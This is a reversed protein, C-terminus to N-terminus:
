KFMKNLNDVGEDPLTAWESPPPEVGLIRYVAIHKATCVIEALSFQRLNAPTERKMSLKICDWRPLPINDLNGDELFAARLQEVTRGITLLIAADSSEAVWAARAAYKEYHERRGRKEFNAGYRYKRAEQDIRADHPNKM